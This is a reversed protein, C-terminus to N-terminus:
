NIPFQRLCRVANDQYDALTDSLSRRGRVVEMAAKKQAWSGSVHNDLILIAVGLMVDRRTDDIRNAAHLAVATFAVTNSCRLAAAEQGSYVQKAAGSTALGASLTCVCIARLGRWM